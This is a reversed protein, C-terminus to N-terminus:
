TKHGSTRRSGKWSMWREAQTEWCCFRVLRKGSAAPSSKPARESGAKVERGAGTRLLGSSKPSPQARTGLGAERRTQHFKDARGGFRTLLMVRVTWHSRSDPHVSSGPYSIPLLKEQSPQSSAAWRPPSPRPTILVLAAQSLMSRSGAGGAREEGQMDPSAGCMGRCSSRQSCEREGM